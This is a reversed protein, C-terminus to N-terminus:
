VHQALGFWHLIALFFTLKRIYSDFSYTSAKNNDILAYFFCFNSKKLTLNFKIERIGFSTNESGSTFISHKTNMRHFLIQDQM